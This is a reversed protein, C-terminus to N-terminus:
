FTLTNDTINIRGCAAWLTMAAAGSSGFCCRYQRVYLDKEQGRGSDGDYYPETIEREGTRRPTSVDTCRTTGVPRILLFARYPLAHFSTLPIVRICCSTYLPTLSEQENAEEGCGEVERDLCTIAPKRNEVGIERIEERETRRGKESYQDIKEACHKGTCRETRSREEGM